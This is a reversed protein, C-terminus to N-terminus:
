TEVWRAMRDAGLAINGDLLAVRLATGPADLSRIEKAGFATYTAVRLEHTEIDYGTRGRRLGTAFGAPEDVAVHVPVGIAAPMPAFLFSSAAAVLSTGFRAATDFRDFKTAMADLDVRYVQEVVGPAPAMLTDKRVFDTLASDDPEFGLVELNECRAAVEVVYPATAPAKVRYSCHAPAAAKPFAAQTAPSSPTSAPVATTVPKPESCGTSLVLAWATLARLTM